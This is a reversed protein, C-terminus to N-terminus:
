GRRPMRTLVLLCALSLGGFVIANSASRELYAILTLFASVVLGTTFILRPASSVRPPVLCGFGRRGTGSPPEIAVGSAAAQEAPPRDGSAARLKRRGRRLQVPPLGPSGCDPCLVWGHWRDDEVELEQHCSPCPFSSSAPEVTSM